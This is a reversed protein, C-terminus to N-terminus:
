VNGECLQGIITAIGDKYRIDTHEYAICAVCRSEPTWWLSCTSLFVSYVLSLGLCAVKEVLCVRILMDQRLICM